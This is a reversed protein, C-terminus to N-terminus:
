QWPCSPLFPFEVCHGVAITTVCAASCYLAWLGILIFFWHFWKHVPREEDSDSHIYANRVAWAMLFAICVAVLSVFLALVPSLSPM